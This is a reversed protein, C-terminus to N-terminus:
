SNLDAFNCPDSTTECQPCTLASDTIRHLFVAECSCCSVINIKAKDVVERQLDLQTDKAPLHGGEIGIDLGDELANILQTYGEVLSESGDDYIIYLTFLGSMFIERAKDTVILWLFGDVTRISNSM